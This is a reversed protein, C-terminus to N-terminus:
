LCGCGKRIVVGGNYVTVGRELSMVGMVSGCGKKIVDNGNYLAVGRGLSMLGM